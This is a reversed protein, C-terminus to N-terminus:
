DLTADQIWHLIPYAVQDIHNSVEEPWSIRDVGVSVGILVEPYPNEIEPYTQGEFSFNLLLLEFNNSVRIRLRGMCNKKHWADKKRYILIKM